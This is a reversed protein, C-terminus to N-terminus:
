LGYKNVPLDVIEYTAIETPFDDSSAALEIEVARGNEVYLLADVICSSNLKVFCGTSVRPMQTSKVELVSCPPLSVYAGASTRDHVHVGGARRLQEAAANPEVKGRLYFSVIAAALELM